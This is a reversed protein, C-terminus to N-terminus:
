AKRFNEYNAVGSDTLLGTLDPSSTPSVVAHEFLKHFSAAFRPFNQEDPTGTPCAREAPDTVAEGGIEESEVGDQARVDGMVLRGYKPHPRALDDPPHRERLTRM